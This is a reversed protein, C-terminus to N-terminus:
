PSSRNETLWNEKGLQCSVHCAKRHVGFPTENSVFAWKLPVFIDKWGGFAAAQLLQQVFGSVMLVEVSFWRPLPLGVGSQHGFFGM